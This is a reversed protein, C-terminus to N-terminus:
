KLNKKTFIDFRTDPLKFGEPLWEDDFGERWCGCDKLLLWDEDLAELIESVLVDAADVWCVGVIDCDDAWDLRFEIVGTLSLDFSTGGELLEVEFKEVWFLASGDRDVEIM